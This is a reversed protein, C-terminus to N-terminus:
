RKRKAKRRARRKPKEEEEETVRGGMYLATMALLFVPAVLFLMIISGIVPVLSVVIAAVIYVLYLLIVQLFNKKFFGYSKKLAGTPSANNVVIAQNIFVFSMAMVLVALIGIALLVWGVLGAVAALLVFVLITAIMLLYALVYAIIAKLWDKKAGEFMTRVKTRGKLSEVVMRVFGVQLALAILIGVMAIVLSSAFSQMLGFLAGMDLTGAARAQSIALLMPTLALGVFITTVVGIVLMAIIISLANRKYAKWAKSLYEMVM